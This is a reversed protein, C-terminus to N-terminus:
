KEGSKDDARPPEPIQVGPKYFTATGDMEIVGVLENFRGDLRVCTVVIREHKFPAAEGELADQLAEMILSRRQASIGVPTGDDLRSM